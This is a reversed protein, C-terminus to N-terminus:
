AAEFAQVAAVFQEPDFDMAQHGQGRMPVVDAGPVREVVADVALRFCAPSETGAFLRVPVSIKGLREDAVFAEVCEVERPITHAAEVRTRWFDTGRVDDVASQPLQLAERVFITLIEEPDATARMRAVTEPPIVFGGPEPRPPEYAVLRGFAGTIQAAHLACLAGYSHAVVFVDGGLYEAVAAIDEAERWIDYAPAERTSLGRGRRDLMHVRYHRALQEQVPAWRRRDAAAGHVLLMPPGDGVTEFGLETGDPSVVTSPM